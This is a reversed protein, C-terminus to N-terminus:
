ITPDKNYAGRVLTGGIKPFEWIGIKGAHGTTVHANCLEQLLICHGLEGAGVSSVACATDSGAAHAEIM